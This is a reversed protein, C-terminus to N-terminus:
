LTWQAASRMRRAWSLEGPGRHRHRPSCLVRLLSLHASPCIVIIPTHVNPSVLM